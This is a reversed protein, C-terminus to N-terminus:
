EISLFKVKLACVVRYLPIEGESHVGVRYLPIEGESYVCVRYPPIEGESHM